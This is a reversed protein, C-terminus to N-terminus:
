EQMKVLSTLIDILSLQFMLVLTQKRLPSVLKKCPDRAGITQPFMRQVLAVWGILGVFHQLNKGLFYGGIGFTSAWILGGAANSSERPPSARAERDLRRNFPAFRQDNVEADTMDVRARAASFPAFREFRWSNRTSDLVLVHLHDALDGFESLDLRKPIHFEDDFLARYWAVFRSMLVPLYIPANLQGLRPIHFYGSRLKGGELRDARNQLM